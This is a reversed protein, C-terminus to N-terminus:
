ASQITSIVPVAIIPWMVAGPVYRGKHQV